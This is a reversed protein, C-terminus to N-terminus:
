VASQAMPSLWDFFRLITAAHKVFFYIKSIESYKCSISKHSDWKILMFMVQLPLHPRNGVIIQWQYFCFEWKPDDGFKAQLLLVSKLCNSRRVRFYGSFWLNKRRLGAVKNFFLSQCLHRGIFKTFNRRVVKKVSCRRQNSRNCQSQLKSFQVSSRQFIVSNPAVIEKMKICASYICILSYIDSINIFNIFNIYLNIFIVAPCFTEHIGRISAKLLLTHQSETSSSTFTREKM